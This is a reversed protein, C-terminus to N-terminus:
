FIDFIFISYTETRQYKIQSYETKDVEVEHSFSLLGLKKNWKFRACISNDYMKIMINQSLFIFIEKVM